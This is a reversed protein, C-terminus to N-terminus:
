DVSAATAKGVSILIEGEHGPAQKGRPEVRLVTGDVGFPEELAVAMVRGVVVFESEVSKEVLEESRRPAVILVDCFIKPRPLGHSGILRDGLERRPRYRPPHDTSTPSDVRDQGTLGALVGLDRTAIPM